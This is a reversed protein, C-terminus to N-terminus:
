EILVNSNNLEAPHVNFLLIESGRYELLTDFRDYFVDITGNNVLQRYTTGPPKGTGEILLTDARFNFDLLDDSRGDARFAVTDYGRGTSIENWGPGGDLRDNGAEGWVADNGRGGWMRDNGADGLLVNSGASGTIVDNGLSGLVDQISYLQEAYIGGSTRVTAVSYVDGSGSTTRSLDVTVGGTLGTPDFSFDAANFGTGGFYTDIGRGGVLWDDGAEGYLLDNGDDGEVYDDGSGARVTDNGAFGFIDDDFRTGNLRDPRPTGYIIAM